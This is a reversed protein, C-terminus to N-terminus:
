VKARPLLFVQLFSINELNRDTRDGQPINKVLKLISM